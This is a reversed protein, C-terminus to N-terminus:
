FPPEREQLPALYITLWSSFSATLWLFFFGGAYLLERKLHIHGFIAIDLPDVLAFLIGSAFGAMLFSPWLILMISRWKM